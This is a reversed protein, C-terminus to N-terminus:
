DLPLLDCCFWLRGIPVRQTAYITAVIGHGGGVISRGRLTLLRPPPKTLKGAIFHMASNRFQIKHPWDKSYTRTYLKVFICAIDSLYSKKAQLEFAQIWSGTIQQIIVKSEATVRTMNGLSRTGVAIDSKCDKLVETSSTIIRELLFTYKNPFQVVM